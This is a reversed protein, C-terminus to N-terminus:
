LIEPDYGARENAPPAGFLENTVASALVAAQQGYQKSYKKYLRTGVGVGTVRASNRDRCASGGGFLRTFLGVLIPMSLWFRARSLILYGMKSWNWCMAAFIPVNM